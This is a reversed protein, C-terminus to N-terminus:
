RVRREWRGARNMVFFWAGIILATPALEMAESGWSTTQRMEKPDGLLPKGMEVPIYDRPQLGMSKQADELKREFSDISGINFHFSLANNANSNPMSLISSNSNSFDPIGSSLDITTEDGWEDESAQIPVGDRQSQEQNRRTSLLPPGILKAASTRVRGAPHPPIPILYLPIRTIRSSRPRSESGLM